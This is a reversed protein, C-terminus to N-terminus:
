DGWYSIEEDVTEIPDYNCIGAEDVANEYLTEALQYADDVESQILVNFLKINLMYNVARDIWQRKNLHENMTM